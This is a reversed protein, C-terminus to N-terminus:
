YHLFITKHFSMILFFFQLYVLFSFYTFHFFPGVDLWTRYKAYMVSPQLSGTPNRFFLRAYFLGGHGFAFLVM